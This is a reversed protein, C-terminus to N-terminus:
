LLYLCYKMILFPIINNYPSCLNFLILIFYVCLNKVPFLFVICYLRIHTLFSDLVLVLPAAAWSQLQM